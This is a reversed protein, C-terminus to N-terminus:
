GWDKRREREERANVQAVGLLAKLFKAHAQFEPCQPGATTSPRWVYRHHALRGWIFAFEAFLNCIEDNIHGGYALGKYQAFLGRVTVVMERQLLFTGISDRDREEYELLLFDLAAKEKEAPTVANAIARQVAAHRQVSKDVFARVSKRYDDVDRKPKGTWDYEKLTLLAQWVDERIMARQVLRRSIDKETHIHRPHGQQDKGPALYCRLEASHAYSGSGATIVTAYTRELQHKALELHELDKGWITSRVRVYDAQEDVLFAGATGEVGALQKEVNGLTPMWVPVEPEPINRDIGPKWKTEKVYVRGEWVANMLQEFSMNKRASVDHVSNDGTGVEILDTQFGQMITEVLPGTEWNKIGGYDNYRAKIPWNRPTFLGEVNCVFGGEHFPNQTLLFWRVEDGAGIPLGSVCCTGAFSGM